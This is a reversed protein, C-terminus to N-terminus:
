LGSILNKEMIFRQPVMGMDKYFNIANENFSWVKLELASAGNEKASHEAREYLLKGIGMNRYDADVCLCDMYAIKRPVSEPSEYPDKLKVICCGAPLGDIEAILGIINMSNIMNEIKDRSYIHDLPTYIDPRNSVHLAHVQNILNDIASYDDLSFNRIRIEM